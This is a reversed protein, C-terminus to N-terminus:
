RRSRLDDLVLRLWEVASERHKETMRHPSFRAETFLGVLPAAASSRLAGHDVARALV